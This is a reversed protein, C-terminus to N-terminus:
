DIQKVEPESATGLLKFVDEPVEFEAHIRMYRLIPDYGGEENCPNRVYCALGFGITELVADFKVRPNGDERVVAVYTDVAKWAYSGQWVGVYYVQTLHGEDFQGYLFLTPDGAFEPDLSKTKIVLKSSDPVKGDLHDLVAGKITPGIDENLYSGKINRYFVSTDLRSAWLIQAEEAGLTYVQEGDMSSLVLFNDTGKAASGEEQAFACSAVCILLVFYIYRSVM